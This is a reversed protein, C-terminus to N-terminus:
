FVHMTRISGSGSGSVESSYLPLDLAKRVRERIAERKRANDFDIGDRGGKVRVHSDRILNWMVIDAAITTEQEATLSSALSEITALTEQTIEAVTVQQTPNLAM